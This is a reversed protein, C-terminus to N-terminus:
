GQGGEFVKRLKDLAGSNARDLKNACKRRVSPITKPETGKIFPVLLSNKCKKGSLLGDRM